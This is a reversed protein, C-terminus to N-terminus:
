AKIKIGDCENEVFEMLASWAEDNTAIQNLLFRTHRPVFGGRLWLKLTSINVGLYLALVYLKVGRTEAIRRIIPGQDYSIRGTMYIGALRNLDDLRNGSLEGASWRAFVAPSVGLDKSNM